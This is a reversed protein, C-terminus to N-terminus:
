YYDKKDLDSPINMRKLIEKDLQPFIVVQGHKRVEGFRAGKFHIIDLEKESVLTFDLKELSSIMEIVLLRYGKIHEIPNGHLTLNILANCNSLVTVEELNKIFNAHLYLIKLFPLQTIDRNIYELKNHSLDIWQLLDLKTYNMESVISKTLFKTPSVDRTKENKTQKKNLFEVDPLVEDLVVHINELSKINNSHLILSNTYPLYKVIKQVNLKEYSSANNSKSNFDERKKMKSNDHFKDGFIKGEVIEEKYEVKKKKQNQQNVNSTSEPLNSNPNNENSNVQQSNSEANNQSQIKRIGQRPIANLLDKMVVLERFSFDLPKNPKTYLIEKYTGNLLKPQPPRSEIISKPVPPIAKGFAILRPQRTKLIDNENNDKTYKM